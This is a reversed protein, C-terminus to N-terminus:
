RGGPARSAERQKLKDDLLKDTRKKLRDMEDLARFSPLKTHKLQEIQESVCRLQDEITPHKV